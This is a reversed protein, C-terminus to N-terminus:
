NVSLSVAAPPAPIAQDLAAGPASAAPLLLHVLTGKGSPTSDMWIRGGQAEVLRRAIPLGLGIGKRRPDYSDRGPVRFFKEFVRERADLPIGPGEDTVDIAVYQGDGASASVHITSQPPAYKSANDLLIYLVEVISAPDVSLAPLTQEVDVEVRYDRTLTEARALGMRVIESVAVAHRNLPQISDSGATSLGEIFRNLRNSEEDIVELLEQQGETSLTPAAASSQEGLLATVSAKIATLPTRLNHTLADLLAAKVQESRRAAEVESARDFAGQLEQYLRAVEQRGAQAERARREARSALEGVVVAMIIFAALAAVDSSDGVAFGSPTIFYRSFGVAACISAVIAPGTGCFRADMILVLLLIQAATAGNVSPGLLELVAVALAVSAVALFYRRFRAMKQDPSTTM